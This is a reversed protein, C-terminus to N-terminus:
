FDRRSGIMRLMTSAFSTFMNRAEQVTPRENLMMIASRDKLDTSGGRTRCGSLALASWDSHFVLRGNPNLRPTRLQGYVRRLSMSNTALRGLKKVCPPEVAPENASFYFSSQCSSARSSRSAQHLGIWGFGPVRRAPPRSSSKRGFGVVVTLLPTVPRPVISESIMRLGLMELNRVIALM